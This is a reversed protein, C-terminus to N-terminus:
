GLRKVGHANLMNVNTQALNYLKGEADKAFEQFANLREVFTNNWSVGLERLNQGTAKEYLKKDKKTWTGQITKRTYLLASKNDKNYKNSAVGRLKENFDKYQGQKIMIQNQREQGTISMINNANDNAIKAITERDSTAFGGVAQIIKSAGSGVLPIAGFAGAIINKTRKVAHTTKLYMLVASTAVITKSIAYETVAVTVAMSVGFRLTSVAGSLAQDILSDSESLDREIDGFVQKSVEYMFSTTLEDYFDETVNEGINSLKM